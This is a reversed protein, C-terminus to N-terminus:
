ATKMIESEYEKMQVRVEQAADRAKENYPEITLIKEYAFLANEFDEDARCAEALLFLYASERPKLEAAQRFCEAALSPRLLLLYLKGLAVLKEDDKQDLEVARALAQVAEKYKKRKILIRSLQHYVHPDDPDVELLRRYLTEAKRSDGSELYVYALKLSVPVEDATRALAQILIRKADTWRQRAIALEAKRLEDKYAGLDFKQKKQEELHQLKFREPEIKSAEEKLEEVKSAVAKKFEAQRARRYLIERRSVIAALAILAGIFLYLEPM